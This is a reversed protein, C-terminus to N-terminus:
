SETNRGVRSCAFAAGITQFKFFNTFGGFWGRLTRTKVQLPDEIVQLDFYGGSAPCRRSARLDSM